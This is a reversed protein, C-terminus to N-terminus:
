PHRRFRLTELARDFVAQVRDELAAEGAAHLTLVEHEMRIMALTNFMKGQEHLFTFAYAVGDFGGPQVHREDRAAYRRLSVALARKSEGFLKGLPAGDHKQRSVILSIRKGDGAPIELAQRTHDIITEPVEFAAEQFHYDLM